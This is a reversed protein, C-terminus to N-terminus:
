CHPLNGERLLGLTSNESVRSYARGYPMAAFHVSRRWSSNAFCPSISTSTPRGVVRNPPGGSSPLTMFSAWECIPKMFTNAFGSKSATVSIIGAMFNATSSIELFVDIQCPLISCSFTLSFELPPLGLCEESPKNDGRDFLGPREDSM